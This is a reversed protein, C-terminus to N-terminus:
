ANKALEELKDWPSYEDFGPSAISYLLHYAEDIDNKALADRMAILKVAVQQTVGLLTNLASNVASPKEPESCLGDGTNQKLREVANTLNFIINPYTIKYAERIADKIEKETADIKPKQNDKM